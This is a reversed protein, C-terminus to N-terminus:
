ENLNNARHEGIYERYSKQCYICCRNKHGYFRYNCVDQWFRTWNNFFRKILKLMKFNGINSNVVFCLINRIRNQSTPHVM